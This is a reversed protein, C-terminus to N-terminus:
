VLMGIEVANAASPMTGEAQDSGVHIHGTRTLTMVAMLSAPCERGEPRLAGTRQGNIAAVVVRDTSILNRMAPETRKQGYRRRGM